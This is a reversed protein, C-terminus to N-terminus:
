DFISPFHCNIFAIYIWNFICVVLSPDGEYVAIDTFSQEMTRLPRGRTITRIRSKLSIGSILNSPRFFSFWLSSKHLNLKVDSNIPLYILFGQERNMSHEMNLFPNYSKSTVVTFSSYSCIFTILKIVYMSSKIPNSQIWDFQHSDTTGFTSKM